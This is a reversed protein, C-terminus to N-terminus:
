GLQGKATTSSTLDEDVTAMIWINKSYADVPGLEGPRAATADCTAEIHWGVQTLLDALSAADYLQQGMPIRLTPELDGDTADFFHWESLLRSGDESLRRKQYVRIDGALNLTEDQFEKLLYDRNTTGVVLCAGPAALTSPGEFLRRDAERGGHGISTFMNIFADFPGDVLRHVDLVAGEVWNVDVGKERGAQRAHEIYFPSLDIGAPRFGRYALRIAHRGTSCAVDLM